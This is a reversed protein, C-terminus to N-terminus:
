ESPRTNRPENDDGYPCHRCGNGCCHGRELLAAETMVKFGTKPDKYTPNNNDIAEQHAALICAEEEYNSAQQLLENRRTKSQTCVAENCLESAKCILEMCKKETSYEM